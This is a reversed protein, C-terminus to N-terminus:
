AKWIQLDKIMEPRQWDSNGENPTHNEKLFQLYMPMTYERKLRSRNDSRVGDHWLHLVEYGNPPSKYKRNKRWWQHFYSDEAAFGLAFKEEVGRNKIFAEKWFCSCHFSMKAHAWVNEQPVNPWVYERNMHWSKFALCLEKDAELEKDILQLSKPNMFRIEADTRVVKSFTAVNCIQANIDCAPNNEPIVFPLAARDSLAYKIQLFNHAHEQLLEQLGDDQNMNGDTVCVELLKPDYEMTALEQLKKRLLETRSKQTICISINSPM